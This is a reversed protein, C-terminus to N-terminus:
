TWSAAVGLGDMINIEYTTNTSLSAPNFGNAWKLTVGSPATITLVTATSGSTFVIDVIGSSPLTVNLTLVEGCVYRVGSLPTISPTTGSVTISGNLMEHIASKAETTYSGVSNNSSSQTSDGAVKALGYFVAENQNKPTIVRFNETGSKVQSSSAANVYIIGTASYIGIGYASNIQVVGLNSGSAKQINAVGNSVVSSGGVQVDQIFTDAINIEACNTNPIIAADKAISSAAQYLKGNAAFVNGAAYAQSAIMNTNTPALMQSVGLMSQIAEKAGDTYTGVSNSSSSQTTDGAAKALGYFTSEHQYIPTIPNSSNTGTKIVSTSATSLNAVGQADLISASNVQIDKINKYGIRIIKNETFTQIAVEQALLNQDDTGTIVGTGLNPGPVNLTNYITSTMRISCGYISRNIKLKDMVWLLATYAQMLCPLGEQAHIGDNSLHQEDGLSDLATDLAKTISLGTLIVDEANTKNLILNIGNKILADTESVTSRKPAHYLTIFKLANGGAYHTQIYSVCNNWDTLDSETFTTRENFYEQLCVIDFTYNSLVSSMTTTYTNTWASTNEAVSFISAVTDNTFATYQQGLTYGGIYWMYIKFNVEPCLTKLLYPLYAIGDQTLSNGVFLISIQPKLKEIKDTIQTDRYWGYQDKDKSKVNFASYNSKKIIRRVIDGDATEYTQLVFTDALNTITLSAGALADVTTPKDTFGNNSGIYYIGPKIIHSLLNSYSSGAPMGRYILVDNDMKSQIPTIKADVADLEASTAYGELSPITPKNSLDNYSGSTAVTALDAINAKGSIDQHSTLYGADNTFASVNTPVTPITTNAPLAGVEQATYTPKQAQKAWSPVTPDTETYSTIYGADNTFSSINTPVTPIVTDVPLAGVEQATYTPKQAQKAWSPVTPDTETYSTLYGADNTFASVKTPKNLIQADGSNANWDANVNVEAGAAIGGLKEKEAATYNNDTHVYNNDTIYNSDNQLDSIKTPIYTDDSLAGVEQATYTPKEAAKAWSPVTPDTETFSTLYTEELDSAPIGTVPKTYHGSDDTLDSVRSPIFPKDELDNYSGSTAVDALSPLIEKLENLAATAEEASAVATAANETATSAAASATSASEVASSKAANAESVTATLIDLQDASLKTNPADDAMLLNDGTQRIECVPMTFASYYSDVEVGNVLVDDVFVPDQYFKIDWVYKGVPLNVTDNHSFEITMTNGSVEVIKEFIKKSTTNDIISFVAVDGTNTTTIVPITFNGTDGRPIILRKQILRIM